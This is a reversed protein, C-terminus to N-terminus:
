YHEQRFLGFTSLTPLYTPYPIQRTPGHVRPTQTADGIPEISSSAILRAFAPSSQMAPLTCYLESAFYSDHPINILPAM